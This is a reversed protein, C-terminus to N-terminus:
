LCSRRPRIRPGHRLVGGVDQKFFWTGDVDGGKRYALRDEDRFEVRLFREVLSSDYSLVTCYHQRNSQTM